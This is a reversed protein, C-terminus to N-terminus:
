NGKQLGYKVMPSEMFQQWDHLMGTNKASLRVEEGGRAIMESEYGQVARAREEVFANGDARWSTTIAEWLKVADTIAHNLGQGRQFTMPHAADGALTVRGSRNDWRHETEGPDWHNLKGYWVNENDAPMWEFATKFPDAFVSALQKQHAVLEAKSKRNIQNAPEPFSIYHFFTWDEPKEPNPANHLGLVAFLGKPHPSVQFLPHAPPARLFQAQERTYKTFCMTSAFNLKTPQAKEPGLLLQRVTSKPGDTGVLLSGIDSSGDAFHATVTNGDDSYTINTLAKGEQIDLDSALLARLRNRHVRYLHDVKLAGILEGTEGNSFPITEESGTTHHPDVQTTQIKTWLTEPIMSKLGPVAWHLGMNWERAPNSSDRAEYISYPIGAQKLGQGLACGTCGAGIILVKRRTRVQTKDGGNDSRINM